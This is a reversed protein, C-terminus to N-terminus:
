TLIGWPRVISTMRDIYRENDNFMLPELPTVSVANLKIRRRSGDPQRYSIGSVDHIVYHRGHAQGIVMMVHGPIYVLDGVDLNAVARRRDDDSSAADFRQHPFVPSVAQDSTNRPLTLGMSQYVESVFGSCDRGNYAHGWGYREGLFRFAQRILNARTLPLYDVASDRNKQLLAPAFALQGDAGRLPLELVWSSYSTQGNVPQDAAVDLALPIRVGMDLDLQSLAPQERSNVTRVEDGTIVRYPSREPYSLVVDRDGEAVADALTWAAYRPSVVFLWKGDRSTHAIVVPTGPFLASEQFRDIDTEGAESFVRRATPFSRLASRKLTLGFRTAQSAPIRDLALAAMWADLDVASVPKGNIDFLAGAPRPSRAEIWQRVQAAQLQAPMDALAHMSPDQELLQRNRVRIADGALLVTHRDAAGKVWFDAILETEGVGPVGSPPLSLPLDQRALVPAAFGLVLLLAACPGIRNIRSQSTHWRDAGASRRHRRAAM